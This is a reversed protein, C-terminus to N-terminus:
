HKVCPLLRTLGPSRLTHTRGDLRTRLYLLVNRPCEILQFFGVMQYPVVGIHFCSKMFCHVYNTLCQLFHRSLVGEPPEFAAKVRVDM